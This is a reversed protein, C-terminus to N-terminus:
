IDAHDDYKTNGMSTKYSLTMHLHLTQGALPDQVLQKERSAIAVPALIIMCTAICYVVQM